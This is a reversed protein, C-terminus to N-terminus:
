AGQGTDFHSGGWSGLRQNCTRRAEQELGVLVRGELFYGRGGAGGTSASRKIKANAGGVTAAGAAAQKPATVPTGFVAVSARSAVIKAGRLTAASATVPSKYTDDSGSYPEVPAILTIWGSPDYASTVPPVGICNSGCGVNMKAVFGIDGLSM